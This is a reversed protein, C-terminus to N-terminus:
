FDFELVSSAAVDANELLLHNSLVFGKLIISRQAQCQLSGEVQFVLPWTCCLWFIGCAEPGLWSAM